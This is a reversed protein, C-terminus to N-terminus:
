LIAKEDFLNFFSTFAQDYDWVTSYIYMNEDGCYIDDVDGLIATSGIEAKTLTAKKVNEANESTGAQIENAENVEVTEGEIAKIKEPDDIKVVNGTEAKSINVKTGEKVTFTTAKEEKAKNNTTVTVGNATEVITTKAGDAYEIKTIVVRDPLLDDLVPLISYDM